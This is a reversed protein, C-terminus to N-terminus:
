ELVKKGLGLKQYEFSNWVEAFFTYNFPTSDPINWVLCLSPKMKGVDILDNHHDMRLKM